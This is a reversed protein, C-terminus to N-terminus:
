DASVASPEREPLQERLEKRPTFLVTIMALSAAVFAIVFV